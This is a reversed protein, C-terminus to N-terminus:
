ADYIGLYSVKKSACTCIDIRKGNWVRQYARHPANGFVYGEGAGRHVTDADDVSVCYHTRNRGGIWVVQDASYILFTSM